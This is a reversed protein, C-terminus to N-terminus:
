LEKAAPEIGAPGVSLEFDKAWLVPAKEKGTAPILRLRGITTGVQDVPVLYVQDLKPYCVAFFDCQGRYDRPQRNKGTVNRISTNFSLVAGSNEMRATKCQMRWFKGDDNEVLLDYRQNGGYPISVIYGLKIFRTTIIAESIAGIQNPDRKGIEPPAIMKTEIDRLGEGM